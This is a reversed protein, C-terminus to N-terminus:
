FPLDDPAELHETFDAEQIPFNDNVDSKPDIIVRTTPQPAVITSQQTQYQPPAQNEPQPAQLAPMEMQIPLRYKNAFFNFSDQVMQRWKSLLRTYYKNVRREFIKAFIEADEKSMNPSWGDISEPNFDNMNTLDKSKVMKEHAPVPKGNADFVNIGSVFKTPDNDRRVRWVQLTIKDGGKTNVISAMFTNKQRGQLSVISKKGKTDVLTVILATGYKGIELSIDAFFGVLSKCYMEYVTNGEKNIRKTAAGSEIENSTAKRAFVDEYTKYYRTGAGGLTEQSESEFDALIENDFDEDHQAYNDQNNHYNQNNM